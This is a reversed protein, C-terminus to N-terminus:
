SRYISHTGVNTTVVTDGDLYFTIRLDGEVVVAYVTRGFIASLTHIKHTRLRGDFPNLKFIRWVRRISDWQEPPLKNFNHWFQPQAVYRYARL